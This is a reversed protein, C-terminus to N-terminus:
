KGERLDLRGQQYRDVLTKARDVLAEMGEDMTASVKTPLPAGSARETIEATLENDLLVIIVHGRYISLVNLRM